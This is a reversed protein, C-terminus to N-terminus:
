NRLYLEIKAMCITFFVAHSIVEELALKHLRSFRKSRLSAKTEGDVSVSDLETDMEADAEMDRM